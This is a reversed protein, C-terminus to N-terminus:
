TIVPNQKLKIASRTQRSSSELGSNVSQRQKINPLLKPTHQNLHHMNSVVRNGYLNQTNELDEAM